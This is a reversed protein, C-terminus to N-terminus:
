RNVLVPNGLADRPVAGETGANDMRRACAGMLLAYVLVMVTVRGIGTTM